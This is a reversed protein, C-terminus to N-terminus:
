WLCPLPPLSLLVAPPAAACARTCTPGGQARGWEQIARRWRPLPRVGMKLHPFQPLAPRGWLLCPETGAYTWAGAQAESMVRSVHDLQGAEARM